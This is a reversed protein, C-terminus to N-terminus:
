NVQKNGNSLNRTLFKFGNFQQSSSTSSQQKDNLNIRNTAQFLISGIKNHHQQSGALTSYSKNRQHYIKIKNHNNNNVFLQYFKEQVVRACVVRNSSICAM